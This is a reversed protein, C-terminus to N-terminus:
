ADGNSRRLCRLHYAEVGTSVLTKMSLTVLYLSTSATLLCACFLLATSM